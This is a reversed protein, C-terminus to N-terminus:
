TRVGDVMPRRREWGLRHLIGGVTMAHATTRHGTDVGCHALLEETTVGELLRKPTNLYSKIQAEWPHRVFREETEEAAQAAVDASFWWSQGARYLHVAEAWLQDRDRDLAKLDIRGAQVHPFRRGGTVDHLYSEANTTGVFSTQRPVDVAYRGYSPRYHDSGSSIFAKTTEVDSKSLAALEALEYLLVGRLQQYADKEGIPIKSDSFWPHSLRKLASSKGAGQPGGVIPCLDHKCGPEYVRAVAGVLLCTGVARTYETDVAGFYRPMLSAVRPDRDWKLPEWYEKVPHYANAEAAVIVASDICKTSVTIPKMGAIWTRAFWNAARATDADTWPGPKPDKPADLPHWPPTRRAEIRGHFVNLALVGAWRREYQLITAVNASTPRITYTEEGTRRDIKVDRILLSALERDGKAHVHRDAADASDWDEAASM